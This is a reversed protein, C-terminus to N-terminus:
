RALRRAALDDAAHHPADALRQVLLRMGVVRQAAEHVVVEGFVVDRHIGVDVVDVHDEDCLVVADDAPQAGLAHALDADDAHRRCDRLAIKWAVPRRTRLVGIVGSLTIAGPSAPVRPSLAIPIQHRQRGEQAIGDVPQRLLQQLRRSCRRRVEGLRRALGRQGTGVRHRPLDELVRDGHEHAADRGDDEFQGFRAHAGADPLM